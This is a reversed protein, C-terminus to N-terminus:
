FRGRRGVRGMPNGVSAGISPETSMPENPNVAGDPEGPDQNWAEDTEPPGYSFGPGNVVDTIVAVSVDRAIGATEAEQVLAVLKPRLWEHPSVDTMAKDEATTALLRATSCAAQHM